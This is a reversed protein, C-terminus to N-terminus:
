HSKPSACDWGPGDTDRTFHFHPCRVVRVRSRPHLNTDNEGGSIDRAYRFEYTKGNSAQVPGHLGLSEGWYRYTLYWFRQGRRQVTEACALAQAQREYPVVGCGIAGPGALTRAQAIADDSTDKGVRANDHEYAFYWVIGAWFVGWAALTLMMSLSGTFLGAGRSRDPQWSRPAVPNMDRM